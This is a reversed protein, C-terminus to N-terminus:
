RPFTINSRVVIVQYRSSRKMKKNLKASRFSTRLRKSLMKSPSIKTAAKMMPTHMPLMSAKSTNAAPDYNPLPDKSSLKVTKALPSSTIPVPYSTSQLYLSKNAFYEFIKKCTTAKIRVPILQLFSPPVAAACSDMKASYALLSSASQQRTWHVLSMTLYPSPNAPM